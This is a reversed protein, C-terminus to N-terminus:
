QPESGKRLDRGILVGAFPGLLAALVLMPAGGTAFKEGLLEPETVLMIAFFFAVMVALGVLADGAAGIRDYLGRGAWAVVGCLFGIGFIMAAFGPLTGWDGPDDGGRLARVFKIATAWSLGVGGILGFQWWRDLVRRAPRSRASPRSGTAGARTNPAPDPPLLDDLNKSFLPPENM